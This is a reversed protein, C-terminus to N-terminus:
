ANGKVSGTRFLADMDNDSYGLLGSLIERTHEGILPAKQSLGEPQLGQETFGAPFGAIRLGEDGTDCVLGLARIQPERLAEELSNVPTLCCDVGKLLEVWEERTKTLFVAELERALKDGSEERLELLDARGIKDLFNKFLNPEIPGFFVAKGNKTRYMRYNALGGNLLEKGPRPGAAQEKQGASMAAVYIQNLFFAAHLMSVDITNIKAGSCAANGRSYLGAVAMLAALYGATIDALQSGFVVPLGESDLGGGYSLSGALGLINNDHGAVDRMPGKLGYATIPIYVVEKNISPVSKKLISELYGARNGDIVVDSRKILKELVELGQGTKFNVSISKMGGNIARFYAAEKEGGAAHEIFPPLQRMLDGFPPEVKIVEAGLWKLLYGAVPGPIYHAIM